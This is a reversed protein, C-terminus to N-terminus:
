DAAGEKPTQQMQKNPDPQDPNIKKHEKIIVEIIKNVELPSIGIHGVEIIFDFLQNRFNPNEVLAVIFSWLLIVAIGGLFIYGPLKFVNWKSWVPVASLDTEFIAPKGDFYVSISPSKTLEYEYGVFIKLPQTASLGKIEASIKQKTKDVALDPIEVWIPETEKTPETWITLVNSPTQIEFKINEALTNGQNLISLEVTSGPIGAKELASVAQEGDLSSPITIHSTNVSFYVLAEKDNLALFAPIIAIITAILTLLALIPVSLKKSKEQETM